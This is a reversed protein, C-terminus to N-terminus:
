AYAAVLEVVPKYFTNDSFFENQVRTCLQQLLKCTTKIEVFELAITAYLTKGRGFSLNSLMWTFIIYGLPVSWLHPAWDGAWRKCLQYGVSNKSEPYAVALLQFKAGNSVHRGVLLCSIALGTAWRKVVEATYLSLNFKRESVRFVM